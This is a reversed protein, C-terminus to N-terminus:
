EVKSLDRASLLSPSRPTILKKQSHVSTPHLEPVSCTSRYMSGCSRYRSVIGSLALLLFAEARSLFPM